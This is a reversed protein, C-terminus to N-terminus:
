STKQKRYGWAGYKEGLRDYTYLDVEFFLRGGTSVHTLGELISLFGLFFLCTKDGPYGDTKTIRFWKTKM